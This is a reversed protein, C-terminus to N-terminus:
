IAVLLCTSKDAHYGPCFGPQLQNGRERQEELWGADRWIKNSPYEGSAVRQRWRQFGSREGFSDLTPNEKNGRKKKLEQGCVESCGDEAGQQSIRCHGIRTGVLHQPRRRAGHEVQGQLEFLTDQTEGRGRYDNGRGRDQDYM